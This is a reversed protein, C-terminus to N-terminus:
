ILPRGLQAKETAPIIPGRLTQVEVQDVLVVLLGVPALQGIPVVRLDDLGGVALPPIQDLDAPVLLVDDEPADNRDREPKPHMTFYARNPHDPKLGFKDM